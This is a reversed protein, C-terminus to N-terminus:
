LKTIEPRKAKQRRARMEPKKSVECKINYCLWREGPAMAQSVAMSSSFTYYWIKISNLWKFSKKGSKGDSKVM